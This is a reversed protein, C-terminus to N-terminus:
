LPNHFFMVGNLINRILSEAGSILGARSKNKKHTHTVLIVLLLLQVPVFSNCYRHKPLKQNNNVQSPLIQLIAHQTSIHYLRELLTEEHWPCTLDTCELVWKSEIM